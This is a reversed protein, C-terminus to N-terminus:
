WVLQTASQFKELLMGTEPTNYSPNLGSWSVGLFIIWNADGWYKCVRAGSFIIAYVEFYGM